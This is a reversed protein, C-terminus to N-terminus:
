FTPESGEARVHARLIDAILSAILDPRQLHDRQYIQRLHSDRGCPCEYDVQLAISWTNHEWVKTSTGPIEREIMAAADLAVKMEHNM